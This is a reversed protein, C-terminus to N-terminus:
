VRGRCSARGIEHEYDLQYHVCAAAIRRHWETEDDEYTIIAVRGHRWIKEGLLPQGFIHALLMVTAIAGKGGGDVAGLVATKGFLLYNGYAWQRPPINQRGIPELAYSELDDNPDDPAELGVPEEDRGADAEVAALYGPDDLGNAWHPPEGLTPERPPPPAQDFFNVDSRM